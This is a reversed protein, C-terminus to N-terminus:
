RIAGAERGINKELIRSELGVRYQCVANPNCGSQIVPVSTQVHSTSLLPENIQVGMPSPKWCTWTAQLGCSLKM